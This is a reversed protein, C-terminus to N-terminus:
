FEINYKRNLIDIGEEYTSIAFMDESEMDIGFAEELSSILGIHGVSDWNESDKLRLTKLQLESVNFTEMFVINYKRLNETMDRNILYEDM